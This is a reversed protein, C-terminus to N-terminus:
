AQVEDVCSVPKKGLDCRKAITDAEEQIVSAYKETLEEYTLNFPGESVLHQKLSRLTVKGKSYDSYRSAIYGRMLPGAKKAFIANQSSQGTTASPLSSLPFFISILIVVLVAVVGGIIATGQHKWVKVKPKRRRGERGDESENLKATNLKQEHKAEERAEQRRMARMDFPNIAKMSKGM